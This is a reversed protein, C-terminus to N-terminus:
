HSFVSGINRLARINTLRGLIGRKSNLTFKPFLRKLKVLILPGPYDKELYNIATEHHGLHKASGRMEKSGVDRASAWKMEETNEVYVTGTLM